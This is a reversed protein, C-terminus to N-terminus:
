RSGSQIESAVTFAAWKPRREHDELGLIDSSPVGLLARTTMTYAVMTRIMMMKTPKCAHVSLGTGKEVVSQTARVLSRDDLQLLHHYSNSYTRRVVRM